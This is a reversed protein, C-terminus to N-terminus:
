RSLYSTNLTESQEQRAARWEPIGEKCSWSERDVTDVVFMQIRGGDIYDSLRDTMGFDEYNRCMSDQTPFCLFPVGGFGYVMMHMEKELERSYQTIQEKQM